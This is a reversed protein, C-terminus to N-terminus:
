QSVSQYSGDDEYSPMNELEEQSANSLVIEQNEGVDLRDLPMAVQKEGIGLFGGVSLVAFVDESDGKKVMDVIEAVTDGQENVVDQGLLESAPIEALPSDGGAAGGQQQGAAQEDAPQPPEAVAAVTSEGQQGREAQQQGQTQQPTRQQQSAEQQTAEQMPVKADELVQQATQVDDQELADLAEQIQQDVEDLQQQQADGGSVQQLNQQADELATRATEVDDQQLAMQAKDIAQRVQHDPSSVDGQSAIQGATAPEQQQAAAKQQAGQQQGQQSGQTMEVLADAQEIIIEPEEMQIDVEAQQQEAQYQVNAQLQGQQATQAKAGQVQVEPQAMTVRIEPEPVEVQVDPDPMQITVEPPPMRVTITPKPIRVTVRPPQQHVTVQPQPQDITLRATMEAESEATEQTQGAAQQQVGTAQEGQGTAQQRQAQGTTQQGTVQQDQAQGTAQRQGQRQAAGEAQISEKAQPTPDNQPQDQPAAAQPRQDGGQVQGAAQAAEGGAITRMLQDLEASVRECGQEDGTEALTRAGDIVLQVDSRREDSVDAQKLQEQMQNLQRACESDQQAWAPSAVLAAAGTSALLWSRLLSQRM